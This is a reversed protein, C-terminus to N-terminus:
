KRFAMESFIDDNQGKHGRFDLCVMSRVEFRTFFTVSATGPNDLAKQLDAMDIM